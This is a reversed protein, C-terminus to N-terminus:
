KVAVFASWLQDPGDGWGLKLAVRSTVPEDLKTPTIHLVYERGPKIVEIRCNFGERDSRAERLELPEPDLIKITLSKSKSEEGRVWYLYAPRISVKEPITVNLHLVHVANSSADTTVTITQHQEGVREGYVFKVNIQGTGGSAITKSEAVATTCDCSTKIDKIVLSTKGANVFEYATEFHKQDTAAEHEITTNKWKLDALATSTAVSLLFFGIWRLSFRM